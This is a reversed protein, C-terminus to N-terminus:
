GSKELEQLLDVLLGLHEIEYFGPQGTPPEATEHSWTFQHPIYVAQAGLALLPLIDSRLSNGIMLFREPAINHRRLLRAYDEVRKDSVIEIHQFYQALGSRAIKLEQDFLDGKTILMLVHSTSLHTLTEAVHEFLEIDASLMTRGTDIITQIETATIRGESLEIAAEIMSLAFGKIGYGFHQLNRMETQYLREEIWDPSHYHALIDKLKTQAQVFLRENHWLTDDADFAIMDFHSM